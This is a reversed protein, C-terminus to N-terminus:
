SLIVIMFNHNIVLQISVTDITEECQQVPCLTNEAHKIKSECNKKDKIAKIMEGAGLNIVRTNNSYICVTQMFYQYLRLKLRRIVSTTRDLLVGEVHHFNNREIVGAVDMCQLHMKSAQPLITWHKDSEKKKELAIM